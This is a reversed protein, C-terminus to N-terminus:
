GGGRRRDSYTSGAVTAHKDVRATPREVEELAVLGVDALAGAAAQAHPRREGGLGLRLRPGAHGAGLDSRDAGGVAPTLEGVGLVRKIGVHAVGLGAVRVALPQVLEAALPVEDGGGAALDVIVSGRVADTIRQSPARASSATPMSWM